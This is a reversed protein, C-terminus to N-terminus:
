LFNATKDLILCRVNHLWRQVPELRHRAAEEELQDIQELFVHVAHSDVARHGEAMLGLLRHGDRALSLLAGRFAAYEPDFMTEPDSQRRIPIAVGVADRGPEPVACLHRLSLRNADIRPSQIISASASVKTGHYSDKL